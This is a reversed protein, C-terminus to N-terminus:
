RDTGGSSARIELLLDQAEEYSPANELARLVTRRAKSMDGAEYYALALRYLAEARDVPDLALVAKRERIAKDHEGTQSYLGALRSHLATEYPSIFNVGELAAAAGRVDKLSERVEALELYAQYDRENIATLAALEREAQELSGLEKHIMALYWYPSGPGAYDPFLTRARELYPVAEEHRESEFLIHGHMLQSAFDDPDEDAWRAIQEKSPRESLERDPRM